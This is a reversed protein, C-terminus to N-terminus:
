RRHIYLWRRSFGSWLQIRPIWNHFSIDTELARGLVIVPGNENQKSNAKGLVSAQTRVLFAALDYYLSWLWLCVMIKLPMQWGPSNVSPWCSFGGPTKDAELVRLRGVCLSLCLKRARLGSKKLVKKKCPIIRFRKVHKIVYSLGPFLNREMSISVRSLYLCIYYM